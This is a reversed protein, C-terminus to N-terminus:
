KKLTSFAKQLNNFRDNKETKLQKAFQNPATIAKDSPEKALSELVVASMKVAEKVDEAKEEMAKVKATLEEVKKELGGLVEEFKAMAEDKKPEEEAPVEAAEIEIELKPEGSKVEAIKGAETVIVIEGSELQHEGVPAPIQVGDEGIVFIDGAELDYAVMTGDVLKGEVLAFAAKKEAETFLLNKIQVLAEKANM